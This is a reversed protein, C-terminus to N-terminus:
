KASARGRQTRSQTYNNTLLRRFDNSTRNLLPPKIDKSPVGLKTSLGKLRRVRSPRAIVM